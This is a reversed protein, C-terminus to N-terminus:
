GAAGDGAVTAVLSDGDHVGKVVGVDGGVQLHEDVLVRRVELVLGRPAEGLDLQACGSGVGVPRHFHGQVHLPRVCDRRRGVDQQDLGVAVAVHVDEGGDIVRGALRADGGHRHAPAEVLEGRFGGGGVVAVEGAVRADGEDGGGAVGALRGD